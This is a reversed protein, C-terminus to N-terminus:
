DVVVLVELNGFLVGTAEEAGLFDIKLNIISFKM